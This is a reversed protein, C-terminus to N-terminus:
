KTTRGITLHYGYRPVLSLGYKKRLDELYSCKARLYYYEGNDIVGPEYEFEIIKNADIGWLKYDVKDNNRIWSIHSGWIPRTLKLSYYGNLYPYYEMTYLKRYYSSIEDDCALIAWNKNCGIHSRPSYIIKGISKM